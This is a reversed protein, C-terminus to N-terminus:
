KTEQAQVCTIAVAGIIEEVSCGRSLDNVPKALGQTIPGLAVANAFRQVLKYGINGAELNPFVLVNANGAVTSQPAKLKAVEPVIAADLQLEGDIDFDLNMSKLTNAVNVIKTVADSKASGKSSYSLLAVKPTNGVFSRYTKASSVAIDCLQEETPFEILGCDSFILRGNQGYKSNPIEMLFFSSVSRVGEKQKIIQLAPRLTDATSHIAGSVLGDADGTKVMMVGFYVNDKLIERAQEVTMGKAKRLEYLYSIYEEKKDNDLPNVIKIVSTDLDIENKDCLMTIDEKNGILVINAINQETIVSAAKLIRLDSTEPLVITKKNLKAKDVIEKVIGTIEMM